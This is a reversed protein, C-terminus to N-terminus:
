LISVFADGEESTAEKDNGAARLLKQKLGKRRRKGMHTIKLVIRKNAVTEDNTTRSAQKALQSRKM